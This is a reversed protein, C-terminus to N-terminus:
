TVRDAPRRAHGVTMPDGACLAVAPLAGPNLRAQLM